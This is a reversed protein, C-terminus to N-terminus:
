CISPRVKNAKKMLEPHEAALEPNDAIAQALAGQTVLLLVELAINGCRGGLPLCSVEYAEVFLWHRRCQRLRQAAQIL